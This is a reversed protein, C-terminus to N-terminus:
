QLEQDAAPEWRRLGNDGDGDGAGPEDPQRQQRLRLDRDREGPQHRQDVPGAPRLCFTQVSGVPERGDPSGSHRLHLQNRLHALGGPNEVVELLRGLGDVQSRRRGRGAGDGFTTEAGSYSWTSVAGGPSTVATVRGLADYATVTAPEAAGTTNPKSVKHIRGLADYQRITYIWHAADQQVRTTAERGLGDYSVESVRPLNDSCSNQPVITALKVSGPTDTYVYATVAGSPPTLFRLRDLPDNYNYGTIKGNPDTKTVSPTRFATSLQYRRNMTM